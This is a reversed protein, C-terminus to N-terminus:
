FNYRLTVGFQWSEEMWSNFVDPPFDSDKIPNQSYVYRAFMLIDANKISTNLLNTKLWLQAGYKLCWATYDEPDADTETLDYVAGLSKGAGILGDIGIGLLHGNGSEVGLKFLFDCTVDCDKQSDFAAMFGTSYAFGFRNFQLTDGKIQGPVFIISYGINMGFNLGSLLDSNKDAAMEEKANSGSDDSDKDKDSGSITSIDITQYIYHHRAFNSKGMVPKTIAQPDPVSIDGSLTEDALETIMSSVTPLGSNLHRAPEQKEQSVALTDPVQLEEAEVNQAYAQCLAFMMCLMIFVTKKM